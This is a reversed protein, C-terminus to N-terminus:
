STTLQIRGTSGGGTVTIQTQKNATAGATFTAKDGTTSTLTAVTSDQVTWTLTVNPVTNGKKDVPVAFLDVPQGHPVTVTPNASVDISAVGQTAGRFHGIAFIAALVAGGGVRPDSLIGLLGPKAPKGPSLLLTPAGRILARAWDHPELGNEFSDLVQSAAASAEAAWANRYALRNAEHLRHRLSDIAVKTELDLSRVESRVQRVAHSPAPTTLTPRRSAPSPARGQAARRLSANERELERNLRELEHVRARESVQQARRALMIQRQRAQGYADPMVDDGWAEDAAEDMAEYFEPEAQLTAESM